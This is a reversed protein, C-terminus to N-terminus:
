KAVEFEEEEEEKKVWGKRKYQSTASKVVHHYISTFLSLSEAMRICTDM